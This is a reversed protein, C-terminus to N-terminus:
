IVHSPTLHLSFRGQCEQAHLLVKGPRPLRENRCRVALSSYTGSPLLCLFSASFIWGSFQVRLLDAPRVAKGFVHFFQKLLLLLMLSLRYRAFSEHHWPPLRRQGYQVSSCWWGTWAQLLLTYWRKSSDLLPLSPIMSHNFFLAKM